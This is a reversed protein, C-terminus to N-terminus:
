EEIRNFVSSRQRVVVDESKRKVKRFIDKKDLPRLYDFWYFDKLRLQEPKVLDFPTMKGVPKPWGVLKSFKGDKLFIELYSTELWNLLRSLEGNREEPFTITEM